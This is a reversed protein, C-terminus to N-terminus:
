HSDPKNVIEKLDRYARRMEEVVKMQELSASLTDATAHVADIIAHRAEEAAARAQEAAGRAEEAAHRAEEREQRIQELEERHQEHIVRAEEALRRLQEAEGRATEDVVRREERLRGQESVQVDGQAKDHTRQVELPKKAREFTDDAMPNEEATLLWVGVPMKSLSKNTVLGVSARLRNFVLEPFENMVTSVSAELNGRKVTAWRSKANL